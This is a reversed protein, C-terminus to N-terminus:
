DHALVEVDTAYAGKEGQAPVFRVQQGKKLKKFGEMQVASFHVFVAEGGTDPAIFGFGKKVDFYQVTGTTSM